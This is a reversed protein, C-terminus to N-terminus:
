RKHAVARDRLCGHDAFEVGDSPLHYLRKNDEFLPVCVSWLEDVFKFLVYPVLEPGNGDYSLDDKGGRERLRAAPFDHSPHELRPLEADVFPVHRRKNFRLADM